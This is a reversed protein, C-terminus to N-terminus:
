TQAQRACCGSRYIFWCPPGAYWPGRELPVRVSRREGLCVAPGDGESAAPRTRYRHFSIDFIVDEHWAPAGLDEVIYYIGAWEDFHMAASNTM